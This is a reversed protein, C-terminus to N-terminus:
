MRWTRRISAPRLWQLQRWEAGLTDELARQEAARHAMRREWGPLRGVIPLAADVALEGKGWIAPM